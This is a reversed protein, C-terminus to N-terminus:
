HRLPLSSSTFTLFVPKMTICEIISSIKKAMDTQYLTTFAGFFAKEKEPFGYLEQPLTVVWGCATLSQRKRKSGRGYMYVSGILDKYYDFPKQHGHDMSFSYNLPTREPDIDKNSPNRIERDIHYNMTCIADHSFTEISAM